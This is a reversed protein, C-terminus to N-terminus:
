GAPTVTLVAKGAFERGAFADLVQTLDTWEAQLGLQPTLQGAVVLGLLITLDESVTEPQAYSFYAHVAANEHGIFDLLTVTSPEQDAAGVLVVTGGPTVKSIAQSIQRGGVADLVLDFLGPAAEATSVVHDCGLALLLERAAAQRSVAVVTAGAAVALQVHFQGVGGAAGLVLVRRGLLRGGPALTRLATRGAMPLTAAQETSVQAPIVALRRM